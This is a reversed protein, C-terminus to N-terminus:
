PAGQKAAFEWIPMGVPAGLTDRYASTTLLARKWEAAAPSLDAFTTEAQLM